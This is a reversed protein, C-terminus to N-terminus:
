SRKEKFGAFVWKAGWGVVVPGVGFILFPTLNENSWPEFYIAALALWLASAAIAIRMPGSIEVVPPAEQVTAEGRRGLVRPGFFVGVVLAALILIENIGPM